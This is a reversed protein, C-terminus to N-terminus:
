QEIGEAAIRDVLSAPAEELRVLDVPGVVAAMVDALASFYREAALGEVALDIDSGGTTRGTALSGFLIVKQAGHERLAAVAAPLLERL